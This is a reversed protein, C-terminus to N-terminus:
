GTQFGGPPVTGGPSDASSWARAIMADYAATHRIGDLALRRRTELNLQCGSASLESLVAPYDSPSVVVAVDEFNKAAARILTVGGIDINEIVDRSYPSTAGAAVREFPYLNVVVLDIPELGLAQAESAQHPDSRRLLIGGHVKPHLTKVRGDLIEPYGTVAELPRVEVGADVLAKATGSTSVIEVGLEELGKAFALLGTKDSLSILARRIARPPRPGRRCSSARRGEVQGPRPGCACPRPTSGISRPACAPPWPRRTDTPLVPVAAQLVIPGHDYVADVLHVTAGSVRAGAEVAAEHVRDGYMGQGGFAPLLAPHLNLMRDPFATLLPGTVKLMWGALCVLDAGAERCVAALYADRAEPDSFDKAKVSLVRVGAREARRLAGADERSSVVLVVEGAVRRSRCADLIAQLNTGEGSAFVAIKLM